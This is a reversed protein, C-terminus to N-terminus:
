NVNNSGSILTYLNNFTAADYNKYNSADALNYGLKLKKGQSCFSKIISALKYATLDLAGLADLRSKSFDLMIIDDLILLKNTAIKREVVSQAGIVVLNVKVDNELASLTKEKLRSDVPYEGDATCVVIDVFKDYFKEMYLDGAIKNPLLIINTIEVTDISIKQPYLYDM